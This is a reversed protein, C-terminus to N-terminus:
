ISIRESGKKYCLRKYEASVPVREFCTLIIKSVTRNKKM